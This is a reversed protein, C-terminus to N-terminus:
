SYDLCPYTLVHGTCHPIFNSIWEWVEVTAGNFNQFPSTIEDWANYCICNSIWTRNDYFRSSMSIGEANSIRQSVSGMPWLTPITAKINEKIDAQFFEQSAM